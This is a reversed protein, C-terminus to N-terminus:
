QWSGSECKLLRELEAIAIQDGRDRLKREMSINVLEMMLRMVYASYVQNELQSETLTAYNSQFSADPDFNLKATLSEVVYRQEPRATSLFSAIPEQSMLAVDAESAQNQLWAESTSIPWDMTKEDVKAFGHAEAYSVRGDQNYDASAVSEGTRTIGSLGAFFSSSYDKYDAENM